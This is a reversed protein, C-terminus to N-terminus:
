SQDEEGNGTFGILRTIRGQADLDAFYQGRMMEKGGATFAVTARAHGHHESVSVVQAGANPMHQTFMALYEVFAEASTIPEPTNPDAYYFSNGTIDAIMAARKDADTEGWADFSKKISDSM